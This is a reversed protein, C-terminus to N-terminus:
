QVRLTSDEIARIVTRLLRNAEQQGAILKDDKDSRSGQLGQIARANFTGRASMEPVNDLIFKELSVTALAQSAHLAESRPGWLQNKALKVDRDFAALQQAMDKWEKVGQEWKQTDFLDVVGGRAGMIHKTKFRPDDRNPAMKEYQSKMMLWRKQAAEIGKIEAAEDPTRFAPPIKFSLDQSLKKYQEQIQRKTDEWGLQHEILGRAFDNPAQLLRRQRLAQEAMGEFTAAGAKIDLRLQLRDQLIKQAEEAQKVVNRMAATMTDAIRDGIAPIKSLSKHWEETLRRNEELGTGVRSDLFKVTGMVADHIDFADKVQRAVAEFSSFGRDLASTWVKTGEAMKDLHRHANSITKKFSSDEGTLLVNIAGITAM